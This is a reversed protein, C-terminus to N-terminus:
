LYYFFQIQTCGDPFLFTGEDYFGRVVIMTM